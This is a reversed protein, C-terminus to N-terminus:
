SVIGASRAQRVAEARGSAGTKRYINKLHYRVGDVTLGLHRAIEKDRRGRALSELIDRERISFQPTAPGAGAALQDLLYEASERVNPEIDAKLLRHLLVQSTSRERVMPRAYDTRPLFSLYEVLLARAADPEGAQDELVMSLAFCRMLTRILGRERAVGFLGDALDRAASFEGSAILLRIRACSIAEMERWSQFDLDFLGHVDGPLAADLWARHAEDVRGAATLYGIRLALLHRVVSALGQSDASDRSAQIAALAGEIGGTEFRWEAAVEHAAVYIDLWAVPNRATVAVLPAQEQVPTMRNRELNLETMLIQATLTMASDRPFHQEAIRAASTYCDEADISRGQAMAVIGCHLKMHYNGYKSDCLAYHTEAEAGFTRGREFRARQYHAAFLLVAHCAVTAHDPVDEGKVDELSEILEDFLEDSYPLCGYGILTARIITAEARLAGDDGNSRDRFFNLTRTRVNEYLERAAVLRSQHILLRCRLLALRPFRDAVEETLFREAAGLRTMGERLWLRLGGASVLISGVLEADGAEGAHRVAPLLHGRKRMAVAIARHLQRHRRPGERLREVNCYEKLLPHLRKADTAGGLPQLLGDLAALGGLRRGTDNRNMADDVIASDIWDFQALDLLFERDEQAVNRFLRAGVWNAAVGEDGTPIRPLKGIAGTAVNDLRASRYLCVAVPWGETREAVAALERRPLGGSFYAAIDPKSFRLQEAGIVTARGDLVASSLDLGPNDRLGLVIRLNRPAHHLFFDLAEVAHGKLREVEDIALLCPAHHNDIQQELREMRYEIAEPTSDMHLGAVEFAYMLYMEVGDATDDEDLTLWAALNGREKEHRCIESLLTTKGFGGPARLMVIPWRSREIREMLRPRDFYYPTQTPLAVKTALLWPATTSIPFSDRFRTSTGAFEENGADTNKNATIMM